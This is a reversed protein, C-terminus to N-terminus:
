SVLRGRKLEIIDFEAPEYGKERLQQWALHVAHAHQVAVPEVTKAFGMRENRFVVRWEYVNASTSM